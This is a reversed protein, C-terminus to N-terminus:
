QQKASALLRDFAAIADADALLDSKHETLGVADLLDDLPIENISNGTPRHQQWEPFSHTYDAVDWDDCDEFRRAVDRLKEIEFASLKGIGPEDLLEVDWKDANRFYRGWEAAGVDQGKILDYTRSLVPGNKMAVVTDGTIPRGTEALCERDAIYLLKLLRLRSMRRSVSTKLLVAAAQATKITEFPILMM